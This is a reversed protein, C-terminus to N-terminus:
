PLITQDNQVNDACRVILFTMASFSRLSSEEVRELLDVVGLLLNFAKGFIAFAALESLSPSSELLMIVLGLTVDLPQLLDRFRPLGARPLFPSAM